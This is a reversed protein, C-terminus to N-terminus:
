KTELAAVRAKLSEIEGIAEQLAATLLPVLKSQDIGQYVPNGDADVADKEGTIAEPVVAQVEHAIFGDVTKGPEVIFNFRSPRLQLLRTIGDTVAAVNEKLRYDSSTNYAVSSLSSQSISGIITSNYFFNAFVSGSNGNEHSVIIAGVASNAVFANQSPTTSTTNVYLRGVNDIRVRETPSASGDQTVSFVLRGPMDNAGPTGDVFAAIEAGVPFNTGDSGQFSLGGFYDGSQLVTNGGVAGSRQHALALFAGGSDSRSSIISSISGNASAGEVQTAPGVSGGFMNTRATSTGVLLRRSSDIRVAEQPAAAAANTGFAIYHDNGSTTNAAEIYAYRLHSNAESVGSLNIRVGQGANNDSPGNNLLLVNSIASASDSRILTRNSANGSLTSGIGVRGSSGNIYFRDLISGVGDWLSIKFDARGNVGDAPVFYLGSEQPGWNSAPSDFVFGKTSVTSNQVKINGNASIIQTPSSTGIGLGTSTLRMREALTGSSSTLFEIHSSTISGADLRGSIQVEGTVGAGNGYFDLAGLLSGATTGTYMGYFQGDRTRITGSVDLPHGPSSTGVGLRGSSDIVLSNASASPNVSFAPSSGATGGGKIEFTGDARIRFRETISGSGSSNYFVGVGSGDLYWASSGSTADFKANSGASSFYHNSGTLLYTGSGDFYTSIAADRDSSPHQIRFRPVNSNAGALTLLGDPSGTGIGVEGDADVFLRGSGGTSIALQDAGPSYIGTNEDGEIAISPAAATGLPVGRFLEEITIRKNKNAAAAESIDVIPLYDGSAPATLATLDSIKRDAM